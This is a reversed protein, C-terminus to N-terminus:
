TILSTPPARIRYPTPVDTILATTSDIRRYIYLVPKVKAANNGILGNESQELALCIQCPQTPAHSPHEISHIFSFFQGVLLAVSIAAIKSQYVQASVKM